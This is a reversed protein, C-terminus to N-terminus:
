GLNFKWKNHSHIQQLLFQVFIQSSLLMTLCCHTQELIHLFEANVTKQIGCRQLDTVFNENIVTTM